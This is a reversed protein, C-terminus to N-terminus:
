EKKLTITTGYTIDMFDSVFMVTLMRGKLQKPIDINCVVSGKKNVMQPSARKLLVLEDFEPECLIAFWTERQSKGFKPAYVKFDQNWPTNEHNLTIVLTDSSSQEVNFEGTPIKSAVDLFRKRKQPPVGLQNALVQLQNYSMSGLKKLENSNESSDQVEELILKDLDKGDDEEEDVFAPSLGPLISLPGNDFWCAQKICQMVRVLTLTTSLYGLESTTDIYAQLIRLSQALVAVTDQSYDAIPLDVRSMFAQLLLFAKIHPNWFFDLEYGFSDAPYRMKESM